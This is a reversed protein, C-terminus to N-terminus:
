FVWIFDMLRNLLGKKNANGIPGKGVYRIVPNLVYTSLITNRESIDRPSIIGSFVITEIERGLVLTTKAEIVMNGNPLVERVEAQIQSKFSGKKDIKGKAKHSKEGSVDFEPLLQDGPQAMNAGAKRRLDWYWKAIKAKVGSKTNTDTNEESQAASQQVIQIHVTDHKQSAVLSSSTILSPSRLNKPKNDWLSDSHGSKQIIISLSIAFITTILLTKKM